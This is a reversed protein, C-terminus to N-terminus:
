FIGLEMVFDRVVSLYSPVYPYLQVFNWEGGFFLKLEPIRVGRLTATKGRTKQAREHSGGARALEPLGVAVRPGM